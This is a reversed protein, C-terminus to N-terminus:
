IIDSAYDALVMTLVYRKKTRPLNVMIEVATRELPIGVIYIVM